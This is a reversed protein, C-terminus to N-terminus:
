IFQLPQSFMPSLSIDKAKLAQSFLFIFSMMIENKIPIILDNCLKVGSEPYFTSIFFTGVVEGVHIEKQFPTAVFDTIPPKSVDQSERVIVNSPVPYLNMIIARKSSIFCLIKMNRLMILVPFRCIHVFIITIEISKEPHSKDWFTSILHFIRPSLLTRREKM